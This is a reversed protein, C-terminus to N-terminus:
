SQRGSAPPGAWPQTCDTSPSTTTLRAISPSTGISSCSSRVTRPPSRGPSERLLRLATHQPPRRSRGLRRERMRGLPDGGPVGSGPPERRPALVVLEMGATAPLSEPFEGGITILEHFGPPTSMRLPSWNSPAPAAAVPRARVIRWRTSPPRRSPSRSASTSISTAPWPRRRDSDPLGDTADGAQHEEKWKGTAVFGGDAGVKLKLRFRDYIKGDEVGESTVLVDVREPLSTAGTIRGSVRVQHKKIGVEAHLVQQHVM